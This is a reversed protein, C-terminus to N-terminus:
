VKVHNNIVNDLRDKWVDSSNILNTVLTVTGDLHVFAPVDVWRGKGRVVAKLRKGSYLSPLLVDLGKTSTLLLGSKEPVFFTAYILSYEATTLQCGKFHHENKEIYHQRLARLHKCRRQKKEFQTDFIYMAMFRRQDNETRPLPGKRSAHVLANIRDRTNELKDYLSSSIQGKELIITLKNCTIIVDSLSLIQGFDFSVIYDSIHDSYFYGCSERFFSNIFTKDSNVNFDILACTSVFDEAVNNPVIVDDGYVRCSPTFSRAIAYLMATMVEFTYGNGMSSLKKPTHFTGDIEVYHSRSKLLTEYVRKPFLSCVAAITVSDSANSFDITAFDSNKIIWGHLFQASYEVTKIGYVDCGLRPVVNELMNGQAKLVRLIEAAIARQIIVPFMAEVNIFRRKVNSKPVTSARAGDVITLARTILLHKFVSFGTDPHNRFRLYLKRREKRTVVGIHQRAARKFASNNYIFVCTDDLCNATTTWHSKKFLKSLISVEGKSSIYTEGPTVSYRVNSMDVSFDKFWNRLLARAKVLHPSVWVDLSDSLRNDYDIYQQFTQSTLEKTKSPDDVHFKSSLRHAVLRDVCDHPEVKNNFPEMSGLSESLVTMESQAAKIIHKVKDKQVCQKRSSSIVSKRSQRVTM